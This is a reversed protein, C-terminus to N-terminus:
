WIVSGCISSQNWNTPSPVPLFSAAALATSSPATSMRKEVTTLAKPTLSMARILEAPTNMSSIAATARITKRAACMVRPGLVTRVSVYPSPLPWLRPYKPANRVADRADAYTIYPKSVAEDSPSSDCLGPWFAGRAMRRASM